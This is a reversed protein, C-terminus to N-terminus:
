LRGLLFRLCYNHLIKPPVCPALQSPLIYVTIVFCCLVFRSTEALSLWYSPSTWVAHSPGHSHVQSRVIMRQNKQIFFRQCSQRCRQGFHSCLSYSFYNWTNPYTIPAGNALDAFVFDRTEPKINGTPNKLIENAPSVLNLSLSFSIFKLMTFYYDQIFSAVM